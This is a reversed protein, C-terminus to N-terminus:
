KVNPFNKKLDRIVLLVAARAGHATAEDCRKGKRRVRGPHIYNRFDRALDAQKETDDEILKLEAAVPILQALVWQDLSPDPQASLKKKSTADQIARTQEAPPKQDIAWLLLAEVVSGAVVTASKWGRNS